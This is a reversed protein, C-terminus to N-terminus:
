GILGDRLATAVAEARNNVDLKAYIRELHIKVTAPSLYLAAAIERNSRGTSVHKLIELERDTLGRGHAPEHTAEVTVEGRTVEGRTTERAVLLHRGPAIAWRARFDVVTHLGDGRLLSYRGELTGRTRLEAWLRQLQGHAAPPTFDDLPRGLIETRSAGLLTPATQNVVTFRRQDDLVAVADFATAFISEMVDIFLDRVFGGYVPSEDDNSNFTPLPM